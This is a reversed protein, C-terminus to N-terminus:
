RLNGPDSDSPKRQLARSRQRLYTSTLRLPSRTRHRPYAADRDHVVDHPLAVARSLTM